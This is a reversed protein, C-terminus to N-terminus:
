NQHGYRLQVPKLLFLAIVLACRYHYKLIIGQGIDRPQGSAGTARHYATSATLSYRDYDSM